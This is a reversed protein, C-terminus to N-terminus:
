LYQETKGPIANNTPKFEWLIEKMKKSLWPRNKGIREEMGAQAM